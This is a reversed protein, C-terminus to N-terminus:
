ASSFQSRLSFPQSPNNIFRCLNHLLKMSIELVEIFYFIGRPPWMENLGNTEDKGGSWLSGM